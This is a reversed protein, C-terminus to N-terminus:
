FILSGCLFSLKEREREGGRDRQKQQDWTVCLFFEATPTIAEAAALLGLL